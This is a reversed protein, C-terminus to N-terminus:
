FHRSLNHETGDQIATPSISPQRGTAALVLQISTSVALSEDCERFVLREAGFHDTWAKLVRQKHDYLIIAFTGRLERVFDDGLERYLGGLHAAVNTLGSVLLDARCIL